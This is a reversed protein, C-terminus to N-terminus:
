EEDFSEGWYKTKIKKSDAGACIMRIDQDWKEKMQHRRLLDYFAYLTHNEIDIGYVEAMQLM